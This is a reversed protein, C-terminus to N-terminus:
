GARCAPLRPGLDYPTTTAATTNSSVKPATTAAPRGSSSAANPTAIANMSPPIRAATMSVGSQADSTDIM